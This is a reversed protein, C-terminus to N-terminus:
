QEDDIGGGTLTAHVEKGMPNPVSPDKDSITLEVKMDLKECISIMKNLTIGPGKFIRKDNLFNDGFRQAYKNIDCHKLNVAEKLAVMEPTDTQGIPPSFVSDIDTLIESEIDRLQQQKNLFEQMTSADNYDVMPISDKLYISEENKDPFKTFYISGADYIGPRDDTNNRYPLIYSKGDDINEVEIGTTTNAYLEKNEAYVEPTVIDIVRGDVSARRAFEM